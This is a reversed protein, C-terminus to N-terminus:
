FIIIIKEGMKEFSTKCFKVGNKVDEIYRRVHEDILVSDPTTYKVDNVSYLSDIAYLIKSFDIEITKETKTIEILNNVIEEEYEKFFEIQKLNSLLTASLFEVIFFVNNHKTEKSDTNIKEVLTALYSEIRKISKKIKETKM